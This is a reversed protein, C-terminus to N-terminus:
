DATGSWVAMAAVSGIIILAFMLIVVLIKLWEYNPARRIQPLMLRGM